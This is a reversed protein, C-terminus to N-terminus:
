SGRPSKSCIVFPSMRACNFNEWFTGANVSCPPTFQAVDEFSVYSVVHPTELKEKLILRTM